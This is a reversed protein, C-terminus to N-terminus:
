KLVSALTQELAPGRLSEGIIKGTPDILVNYPISEVNYISAAESNWFKLDSVQTWSLGDDKIAKLWADKEKDLSVGVIAFNKDKFQNYATVVNPNEMRCPQCWSAWFDVLVYKGRFSSLSVPKGNVDPLTFDPAQRPKLQEKVSALATSQPFKASNKAIIDTVEMQSFGQLGLDKSRQQFAGLAYLVEIPSTSKNIFATTYDKLDAAAQMFEANVPKIVSDATNLKSLSDLNKELTYIKTSQQYNYKDFETIAKSAESGEVTYPQTKNAMDANLTIHKSDNVLLAFPFPSKGLRLTYLMEEKGNTKLSFSGDKDVKASDVIVPNSNNQDEELFVMGANSNKITGDVTFGAGTKSKCSVLGVLAIAYICKNM